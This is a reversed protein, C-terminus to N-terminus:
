IKIRAGQKDKPLQFTSKKTPVYKTFRTINSRKQPYSRQTCPRLQIESTNKKSQNALKM